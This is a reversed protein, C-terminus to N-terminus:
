LIEVAKELIDYLEKFITENPKEKSFLWELYRNKEGDKPCCLMISEKKKALFYGFEVNTTLAPMDPFKRPIYFIIIDAAFLAEREWETQYTLDLPMNEEKLEPVYVIGNFNLSELIDCAEKRWSLLFSSNRRTPGALFISKEGHKVQENSYNIIM